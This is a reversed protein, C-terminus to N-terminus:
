SRSKPLSQEFRLVFDSLVFQPQFVPLLKYKLLGTGGFGTFHCSCGPPDDNRYHNKRGKVGCQSIMNEFSHFPGM